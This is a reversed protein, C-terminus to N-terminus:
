RMGAVALPGVAAKLVGQAGKGRVLDGRSASAGVLPQEEVVMRARPANLVAHVLSPLHQAVDPAQILVRWAFVVQKNKLFYNKSVDLSWPRDSELSLLHQLLVLWPGMSERHVRGLLRIQSDAVSHSVLEFGGRNNLHAILQNLSM